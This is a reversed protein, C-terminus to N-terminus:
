KCFNLFLLLLEQPRTLHTDMRIDFSTFVLVDVFIHLPFHFFYYFLVVDVVHMCGLCILDFVEHFSSLKRSKILNNNTNKKRRDQQIQHNMGRGERGADTRIHQRHITTTTTKKSRLQGHIHSCVVIVMKEHKEEKWKPNINSM